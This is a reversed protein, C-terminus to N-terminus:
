FWRGVATVHATEAVLAGGHTAARVTAATASIGPFIVSHGGTVGTVNGNVFVDSSSVFAAPFTWTVSGTSDTLISAFCMQTGDAFRTYSGSATTGKEFLSGTPTGGSEAVTGTINDQEVYKDALAAGDEYLTVANLTGAGMFNGTPSGVTVGQRASLQKVLTGANLVNLKFEGTEAGATISSTAGDLRVFDASSLADNLGSLKITVLTGAVGVNENRLLRVDVASAERFDWRSNVYGFSAAASYDVAGSDCWQFVQGKQLLGITDSAFTADLTKIAYKFHGNNFWVGGPRYTSSDSGVVRIAEGVAFPDPDNVKTAHRQIYLPTHWGSDTNLEGGGGALRIGYTGPQSSGGMSITIGQIFTTVGDNSLLWGYDAQNNGVNVEMGQVINRSTPDVDGLGAQCWIGFINMGDPGTNDTRARAHLGIVNKYPQVIGAASGVKAYATVAHINAAGDVAEISAYIAGHDSANTLVADRDAATIKEVWLVPEHRTTPNDRTGLMWKTGLADHWLTGHAYLSRTVTENYDGNNLVVPRDVGAATRANALATTNDTSDDGIGGYDTIRPTERLVAAVSRRSKNAGSPDYFTGDAGHPNRGFDWIEAM